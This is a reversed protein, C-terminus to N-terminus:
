FDSTESCFFHQDIDNKATGHALNPKWTNTKYYTACLYANMISRPERQRKSVKETPDKDSSEAGEERGRKSHYRCIAWEDDDKIIIIRNAHVSPEGKEPWLAAWDVKYSIERNQNGGQISPLWGSENSDIPGRKVGKERWM